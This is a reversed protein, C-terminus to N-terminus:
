KKRVVTLIKELKEDSYVPSHHFLFLRKVGGEIANNVAMTFTSHGYGKRSFDKNYYDEDLYQSDHILVDCGKLFGKLGNEFNDFFPIQTLKTDLEKIEVNDIYWGDYEGGNNSNLRFRLLVTSTKYDSLDFQVQSWGLPDGPGPDRVPNPCIQSRATNDSLRWTM